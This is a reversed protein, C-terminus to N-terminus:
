FAPVWPVDKLLSADECFLAPLFNKCWLPLVHSPHPGFLSFFFCFLPHSACASVYSPRCRTHPKSEIRPHLFCPSLSARAFALAARLCRSPNPNGMRLWFFHSESPNRPPISFPSATDSSLCAPPAQIQGEAVPPSRDIHIYATLIRLMRHPISAHPNPSRAADTSLRLQRRQAVQSHHQTPSGSGSDSMSLRCGGSLLTLPITLIIITVQNISQDNDKRM